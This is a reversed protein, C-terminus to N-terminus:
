KYEVEVNRDHSICYKIIKKLRKQFRESTDEPHSVVIQITKINIDEFFEDLNPKIDKLSDCYENIDIIKTDM